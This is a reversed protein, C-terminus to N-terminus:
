IQRYRFEIQSLLFGIHCPWPPFDIQVCKFIMKYYFRGAQFDMIGRITPLTFENQKMAYKRKSRLKVGFSKPTLITKM